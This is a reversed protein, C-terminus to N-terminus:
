LTLFDHHVYSRNLTRSLCISKLTISYSFNMSINESEMDCSVKFFNGSLSHQHLLWFFFRCNDSSAVWIVKDEGVVYEQLGHVGHVVPEATWPFEGSM